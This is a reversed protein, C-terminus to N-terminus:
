STTLLSIVLGAAGVVAAVAAVVLPVRSPRQSDADRPVLAIIAAAVTAIGVFAGTVTALNPGKLDAGTAGGVTFSVASVLAAVGLSPWPLGDSRLLVVVAGVALGLAVVVLVITLATPM